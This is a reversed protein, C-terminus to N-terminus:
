GPIWECLQLTRFTSFGTIYIEGAMLDALLWLLLDPVSPLLVFYLYKDNDDKNHNHVDIIIDNFSPEFVDDNNGNNNSYNLWIM